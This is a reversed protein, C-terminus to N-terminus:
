SSPSCDIIAMIPVHAEDGKCSPLLLFDAGSVTIIGPDNTYILDLVNGFKNQLNCMQFLGMDSFADTFSRTLRSRVCQSEGLMPLFDYGADNEIWKTKYPNLDGCILLKDNDNLNENLVEIAKIHSKYISFMGDDNRPQIYLCYVYIYANNLPIRVCVSELGTMELYSYEECKIDNRVAILVGGGKSATKAIESSCRDKRFVNYRDSLFERDNITPNLWHETIVILNYDSSSSSTLM